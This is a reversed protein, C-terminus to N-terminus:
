TPFRGRNVRRRSSHDPGDTARTVLADVVTAGGPAALLPNVEVEVLGPVETAARAIALVAEVVADVDAGPRGRHGALLPWVALRRLAGAVEDADVPLLLSATERLVEVLTGGTGVTLLWGVPDERRVTVLLEAVADPVQAEVLVHAGDGAGAAAGAVRPAAEVVAAGDVLGLAVGGAETKHAPGVAKVVVPYGIGDAAGLAGAVPVLARRPVPVGRDALLDKAAAEDLVRLSGVVPAVPWPAPGAVRRGWWAAAELGDLAQEIGRVPVLGIETAAAEVAAPLNEAM